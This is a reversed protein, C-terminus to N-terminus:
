HVNCNSRQLQSRLTAMRHRKCRADCSTDQTTLMMGQHCDASARALREEGGAVSTQVQLRPDTLRTSMDARVPLTLALPWRLVTFRATLLMREVESVKPATLLTHFFQRSRPAPNPNICHEDDLRWRLM